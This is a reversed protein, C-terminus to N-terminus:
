NSVSPNAILAAPHLIPSHGELRPNVCASILRNWVKDDIDM